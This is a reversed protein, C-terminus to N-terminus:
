NGYAEYRKLGRRWVFSVLTVFALTWLTQWFIGIGIQSWSLRGMFGDILFTGTYKFPLWDSITRVYTPLLALPIMSGAFFMVMTNIAMSWSDVNTYWFEFLNHLLDVLFLINIAGWSAIILVVYSWPDTVFFLHDRLLWFLIALVPLGVVFRFIRRAMSQWYHFWLYNAPRLLYAATRGEQIEESVPIAAFLSAFIYSVLVYYTVIQQKSYGALAARGAFVDNWLYFMSVLSIFAILIRIVTESRYELMNIWSRKFVAWAVRWDM